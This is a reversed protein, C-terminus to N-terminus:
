PPHVHRACITAPMRESELGSLLERFDSRLRTEPETISSRVTTDVPRPGANSGSTESKM